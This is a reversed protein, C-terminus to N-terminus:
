AVHKEKLSRQGAVRWPGDLRTMLTHLNCALRACMYNFALGEHYWPLPKPHINNNHNNHNNNHNHNHNHNNNNNNNNNNTTTEQKNNKQKNNTESGIGRTKLSQGTSLM